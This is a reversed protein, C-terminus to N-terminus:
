SERAKGLAFVLDETALLMEFFMARDLDANHEDSKAELATFIRWGYEILHQNQQEPFRENHKTGGCQSCVTGTTQKEGRESHIDIVGIGANPTRYQFGGGDELAKTSYLGDIRKLQEQTPPEVVKLRRGCTSCFKHDHELTALVRSGM